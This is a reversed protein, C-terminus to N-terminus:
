KFASPMLVIEWKTAARKGTGTAKLSVENTKSQHLYINFIAKEEHTAM